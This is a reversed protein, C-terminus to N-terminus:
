IRSYVRDNKEYRLDSDFVYTNEIMGKTAPFFKDHSPSKLYRDYFNKGTWEIDVAVDFNEVNVDRNLPNACEGIAFVCEGDHGSLLERCIDKFKACEDPSKDTLAFYISHMLRVPLSGDAAVEQMGSSTADGVFLHSLYSDLVRRTTGPTQRNVVEVFKEHRPDRDNYRDFADKNQFVQHMAVDFKLDNVDRRMDEARGGVWFSMMGDSTSLYERCADMYSEGADPPSGDKLKFYTSHM